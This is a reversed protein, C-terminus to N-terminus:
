NEIEVSGFMSLGTIILLPAGATQNPPITKDEYVGLVGMGNVNVRWADPVKIKVAGFVATADVTVPADLSAISTRRLDVKVEGFLTRVEGGRFDLTDLKRKVAGFVAVEDLSNVKDGTGTRGWRSFPHSEQGSELVKILLGIGFVIFLISLPWSGDRARVHLIGLNVLLFLSGFVILLVGFLRAGPRGSQLLRVLGLVIMGVPVLDWLSHIPLLGLNGLFLLTGAAILFAAFFIRPTRAGGPACRLGRFEKRSDFDPM